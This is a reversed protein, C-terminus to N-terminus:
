TITAAKSFAGAYRVAVDCSYFARLGVIGAKFDAYPNVDLELVGWEGIVVQSWDGFAMTASPMQLSTMARFGEVTGDLINGEWLPSDTGSVRVRGKLLAAVAPTTLYGCGMTLANSAAVDTQFELIQAYALSTGTVSGISGTQLVGTPAGGTGDGNLAASDVALAIVKAIDSMVLNEADISSQMMLQRTIETYAGVNKPSMTVQTFTQQSETIPTADNTLWYGTAAGTQKPIAVHGQLGSLRTAGMSYMVSRNRLLDIFSVLDTQILSAGAGAKDLDRRGAGLADAPVYVSFESKPMGGVKAAIARHCDLEFGAKTWDKNVAASVARLM